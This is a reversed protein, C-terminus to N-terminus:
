GQAPPLVFPAARIFSRDDLQDVLARGIDARTTRAGPSLKRSLRYGRPPGDQVIAPRLATWDLDTASFVAYERQKAAVVHRAAVRVFRSVLRDVLPKADGPVDIGAGSLAVLRSVGAERMADTLARMGREIAEADEARNQRPGVAAIVADTGALGDALTTPDDLAGVVIRVGGVPADARRTMIKVAIGAAQAAKVAEAGIRGTAGLVLIQRTATRGERPAGSDRM